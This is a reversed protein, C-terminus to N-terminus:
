IPSEHRCMHAFTAIELWVHLVVQAKERARAARRTLQNQYWTPMAAAYEILDRTVEKGKIKSM